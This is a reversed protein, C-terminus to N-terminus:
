AVEKEADHYCAESAFGMECDFSCFAEGEAKLRWDATKNGNLPFEEVKQCSDCTAVMVGKEKDIVASM